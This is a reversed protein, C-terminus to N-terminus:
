GATFKLSRHALVLIRGHVIFMGAGVALCPLPMLLRSMDLSATATLLVVLNLLLVFSGAAGLFGAARGLRRTEVGRRSLLRGALLALGALGMVVWGIWDNVDAVARYWEPVPGGYESWSGIWVLQNTQWLAHMVPVAVLVSKLARAGEAVGLEAQYARALCTLDGFEAVARGRPDPHGAAAYAEAADDLGDRAEALLDAKASSPGRLRASLAAIYDAIPDSM